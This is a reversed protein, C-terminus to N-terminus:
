HEPALLIAVTVFTSSERRQLSHLFVKSQYRHLPFNSVTDRRGYIANVDHSAQVSGPTKAEKKALGWMYWHVYNNYLAELFKQKTAYKGNPALFSYAFNALCEKFTKLAIHRHATNYLSEPTGGLLDPCWAQLSFRTLAALITQLDHEELRAIDKTIFSMRSQPLSASTRLQRIDQMAVEETTSEKNLLTQIKKFSDFREEFHKVVDEAPRQPVDDMSHLGWLVRIHLQLAKQETSDATGCVLVFFIQVKLGQADEPVKDKPFRYQQKPDAPKSPKPKMPAKSKKKPSSTSSEPNEEPEAANALRKRKLSPQSPGAGSGQPDVNM